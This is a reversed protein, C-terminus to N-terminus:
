SFHIIKTPIGAPALTWFLPIVNIQHTFGPFSNHTHDGFPSYHLSVTRRQHTPAPPVEENIVCSLCAHVSGISKYSSIHLYKVSYKRKIVLWKNVVVKWFPKVALVVLKAFLATHTKRPPPILLIPRQSGALSARKCFLVCKMFFFSNKSSFLWWIYQLTKHPLNAPNTEPPLSLAWEHRCHTKEPQKDRKQRSLCVFMHM